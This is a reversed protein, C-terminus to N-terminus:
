KKYLSEHIKRFLELEAKEKDIHLQRIESRYSIWRCIDVVSSCMSLIATVMILITVFLVIAERFRDSM